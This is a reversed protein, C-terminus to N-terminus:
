KVKDCIRCVGCRSAETRFQQAAQSQWAETFSQYHLQGFSHSPITVCSLVHGRPSVYATDFGAGCHSRGDRRLKTDNTESFDIPFDDSSLQVSLGYKKGLGIFWCALGADGLQTLLDPEHQARGAKKLLAIKISKCHTAAIDCFMQELETDAGNCYTYRAVANFGNQILTELGKLAKDYNDRGRISNHFHRGGDFSIRMEAPAVTKLAQINREHLLVGNTTVILKMGLYTIHKFIMQWDPHVLPEGGGVAIQQIGAAAMEDLLTLIRPTSLENSVDAYPSSATICHRCTLNCRYTMDFYVKLPLAIPASPKIATDTSRNPLVPLAFFPIMQSEFQTENGLMNM